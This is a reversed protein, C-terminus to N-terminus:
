PTQTEVGSAPSMNKKNAGRTKSQCLSAEGDNGVYEFYEATNNLFCSEIM